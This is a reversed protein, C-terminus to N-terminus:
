FPTNINFEKCFETLEAGTNKMESELSRLQKAVSSIYLGFNLKGHSIINISLITLYVM